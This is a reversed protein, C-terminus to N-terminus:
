AGPWSSCHSPMERGRRSVGKKGMTRGVHRFLHGVGQCGVAHVQIALVIEKALSHRFLEIVEAHRDGLLRLLSVEVVGNSFSGFEDPSSDTVLIRAVRGAGRADGAGPAACGFPKGVQGSGGAFDIPCRDTPPQFVEVM